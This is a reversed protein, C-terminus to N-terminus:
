APTARVVGTSRTTAVDEWGPQGLTYHAGPSSRLETQM